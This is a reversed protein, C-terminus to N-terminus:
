LFDFLGVRGQYCLITPHVYDTTSRWRKDPNIWPLIFAVLLSNFVICFVFCCSLWCVLISCNIQFPFSHRVDLRLSSQHISIIYFSSNPLSISKWCNANIASSRLSFDIRHHNNKVCTFLLVIRKNERIPESFTLYFGCYKRKTKNKVRLDLVSIDAQSPSTMRFRYLVDHHKRYFADTANLLSLRLCCRWRLWCSPRKGGKM